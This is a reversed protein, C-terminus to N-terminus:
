SPQCSLADRCADAHNRGPDGQTDDNPAQRQLARLEEQLALSRGLAYAAAEQGLPDFRECFARFAEWQSRLEGRLEAIRARRAVPNM